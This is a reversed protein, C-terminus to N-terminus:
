LQSQHVLSLVLPSMVETTEQILFQFSNHTNSLQIVIKGGPQQIQLIAGFIKRETLTEVNIIGLKLERVQNLLRWIKTISTYQILDGIRAPRVQSPRPKVDETILEERDLKLNTAAMQNALFTVM